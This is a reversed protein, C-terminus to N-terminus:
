PCSACLQNASADPPSTPVPRPRPDGSRIGNGALSKMRDANPSSSPISPVAATRSSKTASIPRPRRTASSRSSVNPLSRAVPRVTVIASCVNVIAAPTVRKIGSM